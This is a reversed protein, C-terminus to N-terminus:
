GARSKPAGVVRHGTSLEPAARRVWLAGADLGVDRRRLEALEEPRMSAFAGLLVMLRRRM